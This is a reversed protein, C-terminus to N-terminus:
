KVFALLEDKTIKGTHRKVINGEGDFIISTPFAKVDYKEKLSPGDGKELDFKLNVFNANMYSGVEEDAFVTKFLGQCTKCWSMYFEAFVYKNETKAKAVGEDLSLAEFSVQTQIEEVPTGSGCSLLIPLVFLAIYYRM